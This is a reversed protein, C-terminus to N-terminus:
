HGQVARVRLNDASLELRKKDNTAVVQEILECSLKRDQRAAGGILNDVRGWRDADLVLGIAEPQHRLVL